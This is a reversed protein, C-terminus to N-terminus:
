EHFILPEKRDKVTDTIETPWGITLAAINEYHSPVQYRAKFEPKDCTYKALGIWCTGLGLGHAALMINEAALSCDEKYFPFNTDGYVLILNSSKFFFHYTERSIMREYKRLHEVKDFNALLDARAEESIDDIEKKDSILVFGWPQSNSATPARVAFQLLQQITAGDVPKDLFKRISKRTNICQFIDM